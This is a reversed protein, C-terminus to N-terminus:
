NRWGDASAPIAVECGAGFEVRNEDYRCQAADLTHYLSSSTSVALAEARMQTQWGADGLWRATMPRYVNADDLIMWFCRWGWKSRTTKASKSTAATETESLLHPFWVVIRTAIM